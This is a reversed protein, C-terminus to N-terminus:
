VTLASTLCISLLPWRITLGDMGRQADLTLHLKQLGPCHTALHMLTLLTLKPEHHERAPHRLRLIRLSPWASVLEGLDEDKLEVPTPTCITLGKLKRFRSLHQMSDLRITNHVQQGRSRVKVRIGEMTNTNCYQGVAQIINQVDQVTAFDHTSIELGRLPASTLLSLVRCATRPTDASLHLTDLSTFLPTTAQTTIVSSAVVTKLHLTTLHPLEAIWTLLDSAHEANDPLDLILTRIDRLRGRVSAPHLPRTSSLFSLNPSAQAACTILAALHERSASKVNQITLHRLSPGFLMDLRGSLGFVDNQLNLTKLRPLVQTSPRSLHLMALTDLWLFVKCDMVCQYEDLWLTKIRRAHHDFREWDAPILPRTIRLISKSVRIADPSDSDVVSTPTLGLADEPLCKVLNVLGRQEDWLVDLAPEHLIHCTQAVSLLTLQRREDTEKIHQLVLLIIEPIKFCRHM